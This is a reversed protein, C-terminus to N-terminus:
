IRCLSHSGQIYLAWGLWVVAFQWWEFENKGLPEGIEISIKAM